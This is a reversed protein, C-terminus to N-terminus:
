IIMVVILYLVCSIYSELHLRIKRSKLFLVLTVDTLEMKELAYIYGSAKITRM